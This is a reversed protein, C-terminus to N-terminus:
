REEVAEVLGQAPPDIAEDVLLGPVVRLVLQVDEVEGPAESHPTVLVGSVDLGFQFACEVLQHFAAIELLIPAYESSTPWRNRAFGAV